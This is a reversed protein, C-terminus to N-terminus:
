YVEDHTGVDALIICERRTKPDREIRFVIRCDYGCSSSYHGALDGTLRHTRLRPDFVNEEMRRLTEKICRQRRGDRGVFRKSARDFQSNSVLRRVDSM